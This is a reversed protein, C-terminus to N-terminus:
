AELDEFDEFDGVGSSISDSTDATELAGFKNPAAAAPKSAAALKALPIEFYHENLAKRLGKSMMGKAYDRVGAGDKWSIRYKRTKKQATELLTLAKADFSGCTRFEFGIDRGDFRQQERHANYIVPVKDRLWASCRIGTM